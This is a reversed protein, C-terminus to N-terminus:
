EGHCARCSSCAARSASRSASRLTCSSAALRCTLYYSLLLTIYYSLLNLLLRGLPLYSLVITIYYSLLTWSSAALRCTVQM